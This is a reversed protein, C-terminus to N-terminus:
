VRRRRGRAAPEPPATCRGIRRPGHGLSARTPSLDPKRLIYRPQGPSSRRSRQALYPDGAPSAPQRRPSGGDRARPLGAASRHDRLALSARWACEKACPAPKVRRRGRLFRRTGTDTSREWSLTLGAIGNSLHSTLRGLRLVQRPFCITLLLEPNPNPDGGTRQTRRELGLTPKGDREATTTQGGELPPKEMRGPAQLWGEEHLVLHSSGWGGHKALQFQATM